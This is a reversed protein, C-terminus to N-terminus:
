HMIKKRVWAAFCASIQYVLVIVLLLLSSLGGLYIIAPYAGITKLLEITPM